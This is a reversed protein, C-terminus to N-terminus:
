QGEGRQVRGRGQRKRWCPPRRGAGRQGGERQGEGTTFASDVEPRSQGRAQLIVLPHKLEQDSTVPYAHDGAAAASHRTLPSPSASSPRHSLSAKPHADLGPPTSIITDGRGHTYNGEWGASLRGGQKM